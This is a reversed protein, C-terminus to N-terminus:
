LLRNAFLPPRKKEKTGSSVQLFVCSIELACCDWREKERPFGHTEKTQAPLELVQIRNEKNDDQFIQSERRGKM